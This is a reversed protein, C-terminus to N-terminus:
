SVIYHPKQKLDNGSRGSVYRKICRVRTHMVAVHLIVNDETVALLMFSDNKEKKNKIFNPKMIKRYDPRYFRIIYIKGRDCPSYFVGSFDDHVIEFHTVCVRCVYNCNFM